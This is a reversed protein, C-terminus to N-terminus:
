DTKAGAFGDDKNAFLLNFTTLSGYCGTIYAQLQVKEEDSLGPHGNVKQELVRLKDRVMVIKHFFSEIPVRKEQTDKNGPALVLEGGQWRKGLEARSTGVHEALEQKLVQRLVRRFEDADMDLDIEKPLPPEPPASEGTAGVGARAGEPPPLPVRRRPEGAARPRPPPAVAGKPRYRTCTSRALIPPPYVELACDGVLGKQPDERVRMFAACSGCRGALDDSM